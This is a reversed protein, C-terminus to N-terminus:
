NGRSMGVEPSAQLRSNILGPLVVYGTGDIVVADADVTANPGFSVIEGRAVVLDGCVVSAGMQDFKTVNKLVITKPNFARHSMESVMFHLRYEVHNSHSQLSILTTKNSHHVLDSGTAVSNLRVPSCKAPALSM